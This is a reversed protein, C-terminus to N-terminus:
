EFREDRARHEELERRAERDITKTIRSRWLAIQEAHATGLVRALGDLL